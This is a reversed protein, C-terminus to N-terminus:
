LVPIKKKNNNDFFYLGHQLSGTGNNLGDNFGIMVAKYGTNPIFVSGEFTLGAERTFIKNSVYNSQWSDVVSSPSVQLDSGTDIVTMNNSSYNALTIGNNLDDNFFEGFTYPTTGNTPNLTVSGDSTSACTADTAIATLDVQSFSQLSFIAILITSLFSTKNVFALTTKKNM